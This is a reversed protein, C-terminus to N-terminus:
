IISPNIVKAGVMPQPTAIFISDSINLSYRKGLYQEMVAWGGRRTTTFGRVFM